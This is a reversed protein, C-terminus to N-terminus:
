FPIDDDGGVPAEPFQGPEYDRHTGASRQEQKPGPDITDANAKLELSYGKSGDRKDFESLMMAGGISVHRGKAFMKALGEARKGYVKVRVWTTVDQWDGRVKERSSSAVSFELVPTDGAYRLEPERGIRGTVTSNIM